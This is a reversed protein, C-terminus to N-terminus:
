FSTTEYLSEANYPRFVISSDVKQVVEYTIRSSVVWGPRKDAIWAKHLREWLEPNSTQSVEEM